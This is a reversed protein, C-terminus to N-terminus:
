PGQGARANRPISLTVASRHSEAATSPPRHIMDVAMVRGWPRSQGTDAEEAQTSKGSYPPLAPTARRRPSSATAVPSFHEVARGPDPQGQQPQTPGLHGNLGSRAEEVESDGRGDAVPPSRSRIVGARCRVDSVPRRSDGIGQGRDSKDRPPLIECVGGNGASLVEQRHRSGLAIGTDDVVVITVHENRCARTTCRAERAPRM